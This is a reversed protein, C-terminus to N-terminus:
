KLDFLARAETSNVDFLIVARNSAANDNLTGDSNLDDLHYEHDYGLGVTEIRDESVGLSVLLSKVAEARAQSLAVCSENTGVTATTGAILLKFEPQALM